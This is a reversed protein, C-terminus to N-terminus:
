SFHCGVMGYPGYDAQITDGRRTEIPRIFSGSLVIQRPEIALGLASLKNALWAVANAPHNLVGAALGTEELVGNRYCLAGIWRMDADLPRFPRGGVVIGANAANDAITDIIKRTAKTAADVREIRTDLIELAPVVYDTADLVDFITCNPGSLRSRMVFALEAEVRTAIFRDPPIAGGDAFFMDDFLIGSDPEDIALASQMAKSTLGIKHGRVVRGESLKHEVWASQIAYAEAITLGPHEISLQRIQTRTKEATDLRQAAARIQAQTLM